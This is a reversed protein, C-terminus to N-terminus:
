ATKHELKTIRTEHNKLRGGTEDNSSTMAEAVSDSLERIQGSLHQEMKTMDERIDDLQLSLHQSITTAIFQKLDEIVEQNM